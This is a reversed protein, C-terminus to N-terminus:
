GGQGSGGRVVVVGSWWWWRQQWRCVYVLTGFVGVTLVLMLEARVCWPLVVAVTVVAIQHVVEHFTFTQTYSTSMRVWLYVNYDQVLM